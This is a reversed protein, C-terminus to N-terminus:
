ARLVKGKTQPKADADRIYSPVPPFQAPDATQAWSAVLGIDVHPDDPATKGAQSLAAEFSLLKAPGASVGPASFTQFYAEGRKADVVLEQAGDQGLSLALLSPVGLVPVAKALGLARAVSLGIRLGTFSGPGTTVAIRELREYDVGNDVLLTGIADMIIEAHGRAIDHVLTAPQGAAGALALQLRERATDIALTIPRTM